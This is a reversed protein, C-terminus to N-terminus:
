CKVEQGSDIVCRKLRIACLANETIEKKYDAGSLVNVSNMGPVFQELPSARMVLYVDFHGDSPSLHM